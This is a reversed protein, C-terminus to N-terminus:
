GFYADATSRPVSDRDPGNGSSREKEQFPVKFKCFREPNAPITKSWLFIVRSSWERFKSKPLCFNRARTRALQLKFLEQLDIAPALPLSSACPHRHPLTLPVKSTRDDPSVKQDVSEQRALCGPVEFLHTGRGVQCACPQSWCRLNFSSSRPV